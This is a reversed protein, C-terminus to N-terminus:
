NIMSQLLASQSIGSASWDFKSPDSREALALTPAIANRHRTCRCEAPMAVITLVDDVHWCSRASAPLVQRIYLLEDQNTSKCLRVCIGAINNLTRSINFNYIYIDLLILMIIIYDTYYSYKIDDIIYYIM